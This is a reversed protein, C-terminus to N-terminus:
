RFYRWKPIFVFLAVGVFFFLTFIDSYLFVRYYHLHLIFHVMPFLAFSFLGWKRFFYIGALAAVALTDLAFLLVIFWLPAQMEEMQLDAAYDINFSNLLSILLVVLVLYFPTDYKKENGFYDDKEEM